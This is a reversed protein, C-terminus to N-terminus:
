NLEALAVRRRWMMRQYVILFDALSAHTHAGLPGFVLEEGEWNVRGTAEIPEDYGPLSLSVQVAEGTPLGDTAALRCGDIGVDLVQTELPGGDTTLTVPACLPIRFPQLRRQQIGDTLNFRWDGKFDGRYLRGRLSVTAGRHDFCLFTEDVEPQRSTDGSGTAEIAIVDGVIAVVNWDLAGVRPHGGSFWVRQHSALRNMIRPQRAPDARIGSPANTPRGIDPKLCSTANASL